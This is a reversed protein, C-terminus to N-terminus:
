DVEGAMLLRGRLTSEVESLLANIWDPDEVPFFDAKVLEPPLKRRLDEFEKSLGGPRLSQDRLEELVAMLESLTGENALPLDGDAPPRTQIKVSEIWLRDGGFDNSRSRVEAVCRIPDSAIRDHIPCPGVLRVRVALLRDELEEDLLSCIRSEVRSTLEDLSSVEDASVECEEWRVVDLRRFVSKLPGGPEGTVLM